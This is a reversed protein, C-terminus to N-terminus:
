PVEDAEDQYGAIAQGAVPDHSEAGRAAHVVERPSRETGSRGHRRRGGPVPPLAAPHLARSRRLPQALGRVRAPAPVGTFGGSTLDGRHMRRKRHRLRNRAKRSRRHRRSREPRRLRRRAVRRPDDRCGEPVPGHGLHRIWGRATRRRM